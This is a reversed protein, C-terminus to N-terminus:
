REAGDRREPHEARKGTECCPILRRCGDWSSSARGSCTFEIVKLGEEVLMRADLGTQALLGGDHAIGRELPIMGLDGLEERAVRLEFGLKGRTRPHKDMEFQRPMGGRRHRPRLNRFEIAHKILMRTQFFHEDLLRVQQALRFKDALISLQAFVQFPM